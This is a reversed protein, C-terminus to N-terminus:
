KGCPLAEEGLFPLDLQQFITARHFGVPPEYLQEWKQMPVYAMGIPFRSRDVCIQGELMPSEPMGSNLDMM